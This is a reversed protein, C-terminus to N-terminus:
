IAIPDWGHMKGWQYIEQMKIQFQNSQQLQKYVEYLRLATRADEISDHTEQQIDIGLLYSALFRLGLKRHRKFHFLEVTDIVQNPPVDINIMRFDKKLGHGVFVCGADILYRLKMYARKLTTLYHASTSPDLDGEKLGSFRTLYDYVPEVTRVYDDICCVGFGPGPDGRLVSIRALGLRAPTKVGELGNVIVKEEPSLMVFEADIALIM